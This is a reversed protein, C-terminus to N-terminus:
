FKRSKGIPTVQKDIKAKQLFLKPTKFRTSQFVETCDVAATSPIFDIWMPVDTVDDSSSSM